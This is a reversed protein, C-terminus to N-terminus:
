IELEGAHVSYVAYTNIVQPAHTTVTQWHDTIASPARNVSPGTSWPCPRGNPQGDTHELRETGRPEVWTRWIAPTSEMFEM